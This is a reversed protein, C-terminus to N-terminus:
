ILEPMTVRSAALVIVSLIILHFFPYTNCSLLLARRLGGRIKM